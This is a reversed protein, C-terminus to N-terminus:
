LFLSPIKFIVQIKPDQLYELAEEMKRQKFDGRKVYICGHQYFYHSYFLVLFATISRGLIETIGDDCNKGM